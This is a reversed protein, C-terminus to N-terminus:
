KNGVYLPAFLVIRNGYVTKKLTRAAQFMEEQLDPDTVSLLAAMEDLELRKKDMSKALIRRVEGATAPPRKLLEEIYETPIFNTLGTSDPRIM